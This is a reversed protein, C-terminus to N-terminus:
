KKYRMRVTVAPNGRYINNPELNTSAVSGVSLVSEEGCIVDACVISKAGIWAGNQITIKGVILDFTTKKYNHNGCLLLAGQSICVHSGITVTALNDIWVNEGIWSHDGVALNWPYKINTHPKIVVGEGITAGFLRLLRILLTSTPILGSQFFLLNTFYWLACIVTPKGPKYWGNDFKDLNTHAM